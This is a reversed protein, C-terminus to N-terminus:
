LALRLFAAASKTGSEMVTGEVGVKLLFLNFQVGAFGRVAVSSPNGVVGDNLNLSATGSFLNNVGLNTTATSTIPGSGGGTLHASGFNLDAAGGLYVTFLYLISFNTSLELPIYFDTSTVGIDYSMDVNVNASQGSFSTSASQSISGSYTVTSTAYNFGTLFKLGGWGIVVASRPSVLDYLANFGINTFSASVGSVSTSFTMGNLFFMLRKGDLFGLNSIGLSSARVGVVLGAQAGAGLQPLQNDASASSGNQMYFNGQGVLGVSFRDPNSARDALLSSTDSTDAKALSTAFGQQSSQSLFGNNISSEISDAAANFAALAPGQIPDSANLDSTRNIIQFVTTEARSPVAAFWGIIFVFGLPFNWWRQLM